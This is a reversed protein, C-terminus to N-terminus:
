TDASSGSATTLRYALDDVFAASVGGLGAARHLRIEAGPLAPLMKSCDLEKLTKPVMSKKAVTAALGQTVIAEVAAQSTSVYALRWAIGAEDLARTAWQRFLCDRGSLALPLIGSGDTGYHPAGIWVPKEECILVGDATGVPHMAIVVDFSAGLCELMNATLGIEMEIEVGPFREAVESLPRPLRKTGYDEM